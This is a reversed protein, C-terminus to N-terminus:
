ISPLSVLGIGARHARRVLKQDFSLFTVEPPRSMLHMADALEIGHASLELAAVLDPEDEAHVNDIGILGTIAERILPEGYGYVSALVWMTELVVTKSLWVPGSALIVDAVATQAPDDRTLLRIVINTDVAHM